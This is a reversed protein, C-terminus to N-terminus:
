NNELNWTKKLKLMFIQIIVKPSYLKQILANLKAIKEACPTPKGGQGTEPAKGPVVEGPAPAVPKDIDALQQLSVAAVETSGFLTKQAVPVVKIGLTSLANKFEADVFNTGKNYMDMSMTRGSQTGDGGGEGGSQAGVWYIKGDEKGIVTMGSPVNWKSVIRSKVLKIAAARAEKAADDAKFKDYQARADDAEAITDLKTMLNRLNM